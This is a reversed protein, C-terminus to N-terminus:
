RAHTVEQTPEPNTMLHKIRALAIVCGNDTSREVIFGAYDALTMGHGAQYDSPHPFKALQGSGILERLEDRAKDGKAKKRADRQAKQRAAEAKQIATLERVPLGLKEVCDIGIGYVDGNGVQIQCVNLIAHGCHACTGAGTKFRAHVEHSNVYPLGRQGAQINITFMGVFRYPGPGLTRQFPHVTIETTPEPNTM